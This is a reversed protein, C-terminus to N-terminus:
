GKRGKKMLKQFLHVSLFVFKHVREPLQGAIQHKESKLFVLFHKKAAMKEQKLLFDSTLM